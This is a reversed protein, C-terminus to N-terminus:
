IEKKQNINFSELKQPNKVIKVEDLPAYRVIEEYAETVEPVKEEEKKYDVLIYGTEEKFETQKKNMEIM